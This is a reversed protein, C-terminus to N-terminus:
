GARFRALDERRRAKGWHVSRRAPRSDGRRQGSRLRRWPLSRQPMRRRGGNRGTVSYPMFFSNIYVFFVSKGLFADTKEKKTFVFPAPRTAFIKPTRGAHRRFCKIFYGVDDFGCMAAVETATYYGIRLYEEARRMRVGHLYQM